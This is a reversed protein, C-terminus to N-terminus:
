MSLIESVSFNNIHKPQTQFFQSCFYHLAPRSRNQFGCNKVDEADTARCRSQPQFEILKGIGFVVRGARVIKQINREL